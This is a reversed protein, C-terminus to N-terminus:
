AASHPSSKLRSVQGGISSISGDSGGAAREAARLVSPSRWAIALCSSFATMAPM